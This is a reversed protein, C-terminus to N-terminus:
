KKLLKQSFIRKSYPSNRSVAKHSEIAEVLWNHLSGESVRLATQVVYNAHPDQLLQEFHSASLLEHIIKSRMEEDFVVLCKEVVHSSFKQTALHVFNGEFQNILNSMASPIKLELVFQVVYNGFADQALLLGNASIEAVLNDRHEGISYRICRQLVCCGHQHTAIDVCYKAAAVFIFKNDENGLCELCRQLVHNGNLDRILALFGPELASIVLSIQQRTKLTEILKQVVRTGHTNLSIRVLQGREETLMLLIQMRQDENCVELLKQMLYNGFPNVTLEVMHDVIENFITQIDQQTGEDFMRQLFRCGHQDKAILYIYGRIDPLSDCKPQLTLSGFSRAVWGDESFGSFQPHTELQSRKLQPKQVGVECPSNLFNRGRLRGVGKNMVYNLDDGQIILSDEGGFAEFGRQPIRLNSAERTTGNVVPPNFHLISESGIHAWPHTTQPMGLLNLVGREATCNMMNPKCYFSANAVSSQIVSNGLNSAPFGRKYYNSVQENLRHSPSNFRSTLCNTQSFLDARGRPCQLGMLNDLRHEYQLGPLTSGMGVGSCIPSTPLFSQIGEYVSYDRRNRNNASASHESFQIGILNPDVSLKEQEDNVRIRGFKKSLNLEENFEMVLASSSDSNGLPIQSKLEELPPPTPSGSDSLSHGASLLSCSSGDSKLSFGSLPSPCPPKYHGLSLPDEDYILNNLPMKVFSSDGFGNQVLNVNSQPYHANLSIARPIEGLLMEFEEDDKMNERIKQEIGLRESKEMQTQTLYASCDSQFIFSPKRLRFEIANM